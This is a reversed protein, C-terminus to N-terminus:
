LRFTVGKWSGQDCHGAFSFYLNGNALLLAPRQNEDVSNFGSAQIQVPSGAQEAGTSLNLAHLTHASTGNIYTKAVVYLTNSSPQIVPTSMIGATNLIDQCTYGGEQITFAAGLNIHWYPAGTAADFAYVSNNSTAVYVVSHTAGGINVSADVLPQAFVQDDVSVKFLMGFQSVNVNAPTLVTESANTGDRLNDNHQTLVSVQSHGTVPQLCLIMFVLGVRAFTRHTRERSHLM